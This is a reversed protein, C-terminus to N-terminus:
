RGARANRLEMMLDTPTWENGSLVARLRGGADIIATRLNHVIEPDGAKHIVSVGFQSAFQEIEDRRGTLFHWIAPDVQLSAARKALVAPSDHDPDFTVSLLHVRGKLAADARIQGQAVEFQRDMLPCFNPLPCRTYMFTVALVQGRWDAIRRPMSTEDIFTADRVQEGPALLDMVRTPPPPELVPAFGTRQLTRLHASSQEVVLTATVLDGPVRGDLLRVDRVKFAMTMGPMFRPIDEHRITIEHRTADVALVQGKLEYERASSRACGGLWLSAVIVFSAACAVIRNAIGQAQGPNRGM